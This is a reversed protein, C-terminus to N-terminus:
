KCFEVLLYQNEELAQQFNESTLVLVNEETEIEAALALGCLALLLVTTHM